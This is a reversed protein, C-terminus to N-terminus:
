GFDPWYYTTWLIGGVVSLIGMWKPLFTSKLMLWGTVFTSPGFLAVAVAAGDNNARLLLLSLANVQDPTFGSFASAHHLVGLPALFFVRAVTKVLAGTLGLVTAVMAGSRSVPKLLYYFLVTMVVQATMEILFVTFGAQYLTENALINSATTAANGFNILRDSVVGQAFIGGVIVILYFLATLRGMNRPTIESTM